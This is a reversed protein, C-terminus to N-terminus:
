SKMSLNVRCLSSIFVSKFVSFGLFLFVKSIKLLLFYFLFFIGIFSLCTRYGWFIEFNELFFFFFFFIEVCFNITGVVYFNMVVIRRIHFAVGKFNGLIIWSHIWLLIFYLSRIFLKRLVVVATASCDYVANFYM